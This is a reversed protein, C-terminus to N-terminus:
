GLTSRQSLSARKLGLLSLCIMLLTLSVPQTKQECGSKDSSAKTSTNMEGGLDAEMGADDHDSMESDEAPTQDIEVSTDVEEIYLDTLSMDSEPSSLDPSEWPDDTTIQADVDGFDYMASDWIPLFMDVPPAADQIPDMDEPSMMDVSMDPPIPMPFSTADGPATVSGQPNPSGISWMCDPDGLEEGNTYEDLDSDLECVASWDADGEVLTQSVDYGFGNLAGGQPSLHCVVCNFRNGNPVQSVRFPRADVFTPSSLQTTLFILSLWSVLNLMYRCIQTHSIIPRM